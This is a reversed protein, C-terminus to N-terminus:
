QPRIANGATAVLFAGGDDGGVLGVFVPCAEEVVIGGDGGSHEITQEMVSFCDEDLALAIAHLVADVFLLMRRKM